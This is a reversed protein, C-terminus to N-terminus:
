LVKPLPDDAGAIFAAARALVNGVEETDTGGPNTAQELAAALGTGKGGVGAAARALDLDVFRPALAQDHEDTLLGVGGQGFQAVTEADGDV